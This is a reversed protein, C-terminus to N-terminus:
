GPYPLLPEEIFFEAWLVPAVDLSVATPFSTVKQKEAIALLETFACSPQPAASCVSLQHCSRPTHELLWGRAHLSGAAEATGSCRLLQAGM